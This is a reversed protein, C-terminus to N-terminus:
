LYSFPEVILSCHKTNCISVKSSNNGAAVGGISRPDFNWVIDDQFTHWHRTPCKNSHANFLTWEIEKEKCNGEDVSGTGM